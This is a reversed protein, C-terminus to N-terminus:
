SLTVRVFGCFPYELGVPIFAPWDDFCPTVFQRWLGAGLPNSLSKLALLQGINVSTARDVGAWFRQNNEWFLFKRGM